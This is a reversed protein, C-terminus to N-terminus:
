NTAETSLRDVRSQFINSLAAALRRGDAAFSEYVAPDHQFEEIADFTCDIGLKILCRDLKDPMCVEGIRHRYQRKWNKMTLYSPFSHCFIFVKIIHDEVEPINDNWDEFSKASIALRILKTNERRIHQHCERLRNWFQIFPFISAHPLPIPPLPGTRNFQEDNLLICRNTCTAYNGDFRLDDFSM